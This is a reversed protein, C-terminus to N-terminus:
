QASALQGNPVEINVSQLDIRAQGAATPLTMSQPIMLKASPVMRFAIEIGNSTALERTEETPRYGAIPTYKVRCVIATEGEIGAVAEKRAFRLDIDFRQKGDFVAVKRGCPTAASSHTIVLIASLPDVVNKLHARTLPVTDAAEITTPLVSLTELGDQGFGMSISGNRVSSEYNFRFDEPKPAKASLTGTSRTVGKWKFVGLLASIQVDTDLTYSTRSVNSKFNFDGLEFGNLSIKYAAQVKAPSIAPASQQQAEARLPLGAALAMAGLAVSLARVRRYSVQVM